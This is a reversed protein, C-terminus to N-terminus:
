QEGRLSAMYAVLDDIESTELRDGYEFMVSKGFQKRYTRLKSKRFSYLNGSIDRLQVTFSDENVRMGEVPPGEHPVALIVLFREPTDASPRVLARKLYEHNRRAGVASLEPGIGRGQGSVIHCTACDNADYLAKGRVPDGPLDVAAVESLARVYAAVNRVQRDSLPWAGPMETGRIGVDIARILDGDSAARRFPQLTLDPGRGGTGGISHCIACHADFHRKGDLIDAPTIGALPEEVAEEQAAAMTSLLVIVLVSTWRSQANGLM